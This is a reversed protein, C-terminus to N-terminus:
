NGILVKGLLKLLNKNYCNYIENQTLRMKALPCNTKRGNKKKKEATRIFYIGQKNQNIELFKFNM